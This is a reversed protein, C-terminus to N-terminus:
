TRERGTARRVICKYIYIYKVSGVRVRVLILGYSGLHSRAGLTDRYIYILRRVDRNAINYM